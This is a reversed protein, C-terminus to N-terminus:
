LFLPAVGSLLPMADAGRMEWWFSKKSVGGGRVGAVEGQKGGVMVLLM